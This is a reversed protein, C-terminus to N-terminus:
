NRVAKTMKGPTRWRPAEGEESKDPEAFNLYGFYTLIRRDAPENIQNRGHMFRTNDIVIVDNAQWKISFTNRDGAKKVAEAVTDPILTADEFTPFHPSKILYRAFLLFNGFCQAPSFMPKYFIPATFSRLM